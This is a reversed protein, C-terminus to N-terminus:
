DDLWSPRRDPPIAADHKASDHLLELRGKDDLRIRAGCIDCPPMAKILRQCEAEFDAPDTAQHNLWWALEPSKM